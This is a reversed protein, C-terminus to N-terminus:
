MQTPAFAFSASGPAPALLFSGTTNDFAVVYGQTTTVHNYGIAPTGAQSFASFPHKHLKKAPVPARGTAESNVDQERKPLPMFTVKKKRAPAEKASFATSNSATKRQIKKEYTAQGASSTSSLRASRRTPSTGHQPKYTVMKKRPPAKMVQVTAMSATEQQAKKKAAFRQPLYPGEEMNMTIKSFREAMTKAKKIEAESFKQASKEGLGERLAQMTKTVAKVDGVEYLAGNIMKLFGGGHKRITYVVARAVKSKDEKASVFYCPQAKRVLKRYLNNGHQQNSGGGRGCLVDFSNLDDKSECVPEKSAPVLPAKSISLVEDSMTQQQYYFNTTPPTASISPNSFSSSLIENLLSL